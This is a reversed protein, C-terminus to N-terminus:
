KIVSGTARAPLFKKNIKAILEKARSAIKENTPHTKDATAKQEIDKLKDKLTTLSPLKNAIAGFRDNIADLYAAQREHEEEDVEPTLPSLTQIQAIYYETKLSEFTM